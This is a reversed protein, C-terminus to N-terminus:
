SICMGLMQKLMVLDKSMRVEVYPFVISLQLYWMRRLLMLMVLMVLMVLNKLVSAVVHPCGM